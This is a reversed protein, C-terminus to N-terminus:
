PKVMVKISKRENMAGYGSPVDDLKVTRDFGRASFPRAEQLSTLEASARPPGRLDGRLM